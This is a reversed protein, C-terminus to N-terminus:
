GGSGPKRQRAWLVLGYLGFTVIILFVDLPRVHRRAPPPPVSPESEVPEAASVGQPAEFAETRGRALPTAAAAVPPSEGAAPEAPLPSPAPEAPLASPTPGAPAEFAATRGPTLAPSALPAPAPAAVGEASFVETRGATLAGPPGPTTVPPAVPSVSGFAVTGAYPDPVSPSIGESPPSVVPASGPPPTPSRSTADDPPRVGGMQPAVGLMTGMRRKALGARPPQLVPRPPTSGVSPLPPTPGSAGEPEAGPGADALKKQHEEVLEQVSQDSNLM